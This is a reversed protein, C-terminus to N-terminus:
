IIQSNFAKLTKLFEMAAQDNKTENGRFVSEHGRFCDVLYAKASKSMETDGDGELIAALQKRSLYKMVDVDIFSKGDKFPLERGLKKYYDNIRSKIEANDSDINKAAAAYIAMPVAKFKGDSWYVVPVDGIFCESQGSHAKIEELSKTEYWETKDDMTPLLVPKNSKDELGEMLTYIYNKLNKDMGKFECVGMNLAAKTVSLIQAGPHM